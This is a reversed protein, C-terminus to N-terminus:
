LARVKKAVVFKAVVINFKKRHHLETCINEPMQLLTVYVPPFWQFELSCGYLLLLADYAILPSSSFAADGLSYEQVFRCTGVGFKHQVSRSLVHVQRITIVQTQSWSHSTTTRLCVKNETSQRHGFLNLNEIWSRSWRHSLWFTFPFFLKVHQIYVILCANM